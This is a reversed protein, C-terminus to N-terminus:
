GNDKGRWSSTEKPNHNVLWLILGDSIQLDSAILPIGITVLGTNMSCVTSLASLTLIIAASRMMSLSSSPPTFGEGPVQDPEGQAAQMKDVSSNM